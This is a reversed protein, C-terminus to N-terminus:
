SYRIIQGVRVKTKKGLHNLSCLKKVTTGHKRAISSLTEGKKVKHIDRWKNTQASLSLCLALAIIVGITRSLNTIKM